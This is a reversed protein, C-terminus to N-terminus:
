PWAGFSHELKVRINVLGLRLWSPMFEFVYNKKYFKFKLYYLVALNTPKCKTVSLWTNALAKSMSTALAVQKKAMSIHM